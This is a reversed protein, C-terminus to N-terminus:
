TSLFKLYLNLNNNMSKGSFLSWKKERPYVAKLRPITIKLAANDDKADALPDYSEDAVCKEIKLLISNPRVEVQVSGM